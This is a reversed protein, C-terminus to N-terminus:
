DWIIWAQLPEDRTISALVGERVRRLIAADSWPAHAVVHL